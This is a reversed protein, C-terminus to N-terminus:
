NDIDVVKWNDVNFEISETPSYQSTLVGEFKVFHCVLSNSSMPRGQILEGTENDYGQFSELCSVKVHVEVTTKVEGLELFRPYTSVHVLTPFGMCRSRLEKILEPEEKLIDQTITPIFYIDMLDTSLPELQLNIRLRDKGHEHVSEFISRLAPSIVEKELPVTM